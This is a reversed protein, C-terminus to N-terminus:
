ELAVHVSVNPANLQVHSGPNEPFPVYQSFLLNINFEKKLHREFTGGYMQADRMHACRTHFDDKIWMRLTALSMRPKDWNLVARDLVSLQASLSSRSEFSSPEKCLWRM